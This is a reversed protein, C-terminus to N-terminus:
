VRDSMKGCLDRREEALRQTFPPEDGAGLGHGAPVAAPTRRVTQDQHALPWSGGLAHHEHHQLVLHAHGIQHDPLLDELRM